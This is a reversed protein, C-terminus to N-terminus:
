DATAGTISMGRSWKKVKDDVFRAFELALGGQPVVVLNTLAWNVV